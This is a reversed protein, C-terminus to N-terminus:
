VLCGVLLPDLGRWRGRHHKKVNMMVYVLGNRVERPMKLARAHYRDGWVRGCRGLTKNIARAMRISLGRAGASLSGADMAEVMMHLHDSQVSIHLIRFTDRSGKRNGGEGCWVVDVAAPFALGKEGGWSRLAPLSLQRPLSGVILAGGVIKILSCFM